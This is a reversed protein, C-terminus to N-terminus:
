DGTRPEFACNCSCARHPRSSRALARAYAATRPGSWSSRSRGSSRRTSRPSAASRSTSRTCGSGTARNLTGTSLFASSLGYWTIHDARVDCRAAPHKATASQAYGIMTAYAYRITQHIVDAIREVPPSVLPCAPTRVSFFRRWASPACAGRACTATCSRPRSCSTRTRTRTCASQVTTRRTASSSTAGTGRSGPAATLRARPTPAAPRVPADEAPLGHGPRSWLPRYPQRALRCSTNTLGASDSKPEAYM